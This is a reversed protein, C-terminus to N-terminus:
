RLTTLQNQPRSITRLFIMVNILIKRLHDGVPDDDYNDVNDHHDQCDNQLIIMLMMMITLMMMIIKVIM